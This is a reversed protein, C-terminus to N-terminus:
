AAIPVSFCVRTGTAEGAALWIEGGHADVIARAVALGLGAGDTSRSADVGGRYFADFILEREEAPIGAGGDEVELEIM